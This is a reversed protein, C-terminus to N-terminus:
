QAVFGLPQNRGDCREDLFLRRKGTMEGFPTVLGNYLVDLSGLNEWRVVKCTFHKCELKHMQVKRAQSSYKLNSIQSQLNSFPPM